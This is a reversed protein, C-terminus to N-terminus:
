ELEPFEACRKAAVGAEYWNAKDDWFINYDILDCPPNDLSGIPVYMWEGSKGM